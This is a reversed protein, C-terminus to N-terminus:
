RNLACCYISPGRTRCNASCCRPAAGAPQSASGGKFSGSEAEKKSLVSIAPRRWSAAGGMAAGNVLAATPKPFTLLRYLVEGMRTLMQKAEAGRLPGFEHLDGGSCFAEDGAGTIAFIKVREDAEAESLAGELAEMVVFNVANRKEPRCITFLAVGDRQEMMAEM